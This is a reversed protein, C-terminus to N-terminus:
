LYIEVVPVGDEFLKGGNILIQQLGVEGKVKFVSMVGGNDLM